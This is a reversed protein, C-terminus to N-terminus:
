PFMKCINLATNLLIVGSELGEGMGSEGFGQINYIGCVVTEVLDTLFFIVDFLVTILCSIFYSLGCIINCHTLVNYYVLLIVHCQLM